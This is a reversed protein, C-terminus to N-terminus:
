TTPSRGRVPGDATGVPRPSRPPAAPRARTVQRPSPRRSRLISAQRAGSGPAAPADQHPHQGGDAGEDDDGDDPEQQPRVDAHHRGFGVRERRHAGISSTVTVSAPPAHTRAGEDPSESVPSTKMGPALTSGSAYAAVSTPTTSSPAVTTIVLGVSLRANKSKRGRDSKVSRAGSTSSQNTPPCERPPTRAHWSASPM